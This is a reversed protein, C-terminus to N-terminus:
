FWKSVRISDSVATRSPKMTTRRGSSSIARARGCDDLQHSRQARTTWASLNRITLGDALKLVCTLRMELRSCPFSSFSTLHCLFSPVPTCTCTAVITLFLVTCLSCVKDFNLQAQKAAHRISYNLSQRRTLPGRLPM